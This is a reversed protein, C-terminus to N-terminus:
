FKRKLSILGMPFDRTKFREMSELKHLLVLPLADSPYHLTVYQSEGELSTGNLM